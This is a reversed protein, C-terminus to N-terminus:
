FFLLLFIHHLFLNWRVSLCLLFARWTGTLPTWPPLPLLPFIGSNLSLVEGDLDFNWTSSPKPFEWLLNICGLCRLVFTLEFDSWPPAGRKSGLMSVAHHWRCPESLRSTAKKTWMSSRFGWTDWYFFWSTRYVGSGCLSLSYPPQKITSPGGTLLSHCFDCSRSWTIPAFLTLQTVSSVLIPLLTLIWVTGDHWAQFMWPVVFVWYGQLLLM